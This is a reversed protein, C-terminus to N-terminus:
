FLFGQAHEISLSHLLFPFLERVFGGQSTATRHGTLTCVRYIVCPWLCVFAKDGYGDDDDCNHDGDKM